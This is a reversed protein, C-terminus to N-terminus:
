LELYLRQISYVACAHGREDKLAVQSSTRLGSEMSRRWHFRSYFALSSTRADIRTSRVHISHVGQQQWQQLEVYGTGNGVRLQNEIYFSPGTPGSYDSHLIL